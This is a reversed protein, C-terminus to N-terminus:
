FRLQVPAELARFGRPMMADRFKAWGSGDVSDCEISRAYAIRKESNVRGMHVWKGLSKAHRVIDRAEPGLKWDTCGGIFVADLEDWPVNDVTAGNQLVFAAPFAIRVFPAWENWLELTAEHDSVVDPVTVFLCGHVGALNMVMRQWRRSDFGSFAGNDAAWPIGAEASCFAREHCGPVLLRGHGPHRWKM